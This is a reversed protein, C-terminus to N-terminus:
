RQITAIVKRHEIMKRSALAPDKDLIAKVLQSHSQKVKRINKIAKQVRKPETFKFMVSDMMVDVYLSFVRNDAIRNILTHVSRAAAIFEEGDANQELEFADSLEKASQEDINKAALQAVKMEISLRAENIKDFDDIKIDSFIDQFYPIADRSSIKHKDQASSPAKTKQTLNHLM